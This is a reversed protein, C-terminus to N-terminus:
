VPNSLGREAAIGYMVKKMEKVLDYNLRSLDIFQSEYDNDILLNQDSDFQISKVDNWKVKTEKGFVTTKIVIKEKDIIVFAKGFLKLFSWGFGAYTFFVGTLILITYQMDDFVPAYHNTRVYHSYILIFALFGFAALGLIIMPISKAGNKLLDVHLEM